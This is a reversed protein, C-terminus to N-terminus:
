QYENKVQWKDRLNSTQKNRRAIRVEDELESETECDDEDNQQQDLLDEASTLM